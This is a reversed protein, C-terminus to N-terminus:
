TQEGGKKECVSTESTEEEMDPKMQELQSKLSNEAERAAITLMTDCKEKAHVLMQHVRNKADEELKRCYEEQKRSRIRMTEIYQNAAKDAAEFVQNMKLAAEALSGAEELDLKREELKDTLQRIQEKKEQLQKQLLENEEVQEILIEILENRNM